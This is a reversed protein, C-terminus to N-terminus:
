PLRQFQFPHFVIGHHSPHNSLNIKKGKNKKKKMKKIKKIKENDKIKKNKM